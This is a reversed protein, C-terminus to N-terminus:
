EELIRVICRPIVRPTLETPFGQLDYCPNGQHTQGSLEGINQCYFEQTITESAKM